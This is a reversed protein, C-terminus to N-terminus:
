ILNLRRRFLWEAILLAIIMLALIDKFNALPLTISSQQAVVQERLFAEIPALDAEGTYVGRAKGAIARLYADKLEPSAGEDILPQVPLAREYSEALNAGSYASLRFIYDGRQPLPIKATYVNAQGVAPTLTVDKDGGPGGISGVLRIAGADAASRVQVEVIAQEGPRYHEENWSVGLLSGGELKKTLGRVAQRWFRGYLGRTPDGAAAWKWMTNSAIGLVQGKGYHQWAVVPVTRDKTSANLLAIAGPRLNGPQNLSDLAAGGAASIDERLGSTFGVAASSDAVGIPFTGTSLPPEDDRIAWPMLPALKSDAYGGLGFSSDGGLLVVAGGNEVYKVLTQSQADTFESAAFSGLIVCDYRKLVDDSTPFGQALDQFGTRDGQVTFQDELVRYMATFLVGHDAGLETRLYKYDVGIEQTFYLVHLARQQVQVTVARTNNAYTLEGPLQPLRVRYRQAGTGNVQVHFVVAAHM